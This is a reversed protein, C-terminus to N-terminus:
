ISNYVIIYTDRIYLHTCSYNCPITLYKQKLKIPTKTCPILLKYQYLICILTNTQLITIGSSIHEM